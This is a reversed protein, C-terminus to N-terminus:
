VVDYLLDEITRFIKKLPIFIADIEEETYSGIENSTLDINFQWIANNLVEAEEKTFLYDAAEFKNKAFLAVGRNHAAQGKGSTRAGFSQIYRDLASIISNKELTSINTFIHTANIM